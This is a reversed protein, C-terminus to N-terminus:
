HYKHRKCTNRMRMSQHNEVVNDVICEILDLSPFAATEHHRMRDRVCSPHWPAIRSKVEALIGKNGDIRCPRNRSISKVHEGYESGHTDALKMTTKLSYICYLRIWLQHLVSACDGRLEVLLTIPVSANDGFCCRRCYMLRSDGVVRLRPLGNNIRTNAIHVQRLLRIPRVHHM